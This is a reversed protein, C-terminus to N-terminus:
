YNFCELNAAEFDQLYDKVAPRAIRPNGSAQEIFFCKGGKRLYHALHSVTRARLEKPVTQLVGVSFVMDFPYSFAPFDNGDYLVFEVNRAPRHSEALEIMERTIELGLVRRVRPALWHAIRGSGCGFDLVTEDGKLNLVEELAMKQLVDIYANKLGRRDGPDIGSALYGKGALKEWHVTTM